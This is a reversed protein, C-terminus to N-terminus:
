RFRDTWISQIPRVSHDLWTKATEAVDKWHTAATEYVHRVGGAQVRLAESVSPASLTSRWLDFAAENQARFAALVKDNVALAGSTTANAAEKLALRLAEGSQEIAPKHAAAVKPAAKSSKALKSPKALPEETKAKPKAEKAVIKTKAAAKPAPKPKLPLPVPPAPEVAVPKQAVPAATSVTVPEPPLASKLPSAKAAIPAKPSLSPKKTEAM